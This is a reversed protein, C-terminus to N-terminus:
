YRRIERGRRCRWEREGGNESEEIRVRWEREGGIEIEEM